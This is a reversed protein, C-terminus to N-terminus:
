EAKNKTSPNTKHEQEITSKKFLGKVDVHRYMETQADLDKWVGFM